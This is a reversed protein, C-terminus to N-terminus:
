YFPEHGYGASQVNGEEIDSAFARAGFVPPLTATTGRRGIFVSMMSGVAILMPFLQGASNVRDVGSIKNWSIMYEVTCVFLVLRLLEWMTNIGREVLHFLVTDHDVRTFRMRPPNRTLLAETEEFDQSAYSMWMAFAIATFALGIVFTVNILGVIFAIKMLTRYWGFLNVRFFLFFGYGTCPALSLRDMGAFWFWVSYGWAAMESLLSLIKIGSFLLIRLRGASAAANVPYLPMPMSTTSLLSMIAAEAVEFEPNSITHYVTAVVIALRLFM